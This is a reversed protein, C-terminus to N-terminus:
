NVLRQRRVTQYSSPRNNCFECTNLYPKAAHNNLDPKHILHQLAVRNM